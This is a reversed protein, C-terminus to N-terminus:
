DDLSNLFLMGPHFQNPPGRPIMPQQPYLHNQNMSISRPTHQQNILNM